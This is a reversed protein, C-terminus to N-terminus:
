PKPINVAVKPLKKNLRDLVTATIDTSKDAIIVFKKDVVMTAQQELAVEAVINLVADQLTNMAENLAKEVVKGRANLTRQFEDNQQQLENARKTFADKSLITRQRNLEQEAAQLKEREGKTESQFSERESQLQANIGKGALSQNVIESLDVVAIIAPKIDAHAAAALALTLFGALLASGVRHPLTWGHM